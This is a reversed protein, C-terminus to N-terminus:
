DGAKAAPMAWAARLDKWGAAVTAVLALVSCGAMVYVLPAIPWALSGTVRESAELRGALKALHWGMLAVACTSFLLVLARQARLARGSFAWDLLGVTIQAHSEAVLPLSAFVAVALLFQSIEFSGPVPAALLYRGVVDIVTVAMLALLASNALVRLPARVWGQTKGM